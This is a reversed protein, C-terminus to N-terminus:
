QSVEPLDEMSRYPTGTPVDPLANSIAVYRAPITLSSKFRLIFAWYHVIICFNTAFQATSYKWETM